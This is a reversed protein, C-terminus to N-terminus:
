GSRLGWRGCGGVVLGEGGRGDGNADINDQEEGKEQAHHACHRAGKNLLPTVLVQSAGVGASGWM